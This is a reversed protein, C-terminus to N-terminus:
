KKKMKKIKKVEESTIGFAIAKSIAQDNAIKANNYRKASAAASGIQKVRRWEKHAVLLEGVAEAMEVSSLTVLIQGKKVTDGMKVHRSIIQAEIRPTVKSSLYSNIIVEGPAKIETKLMKLALPEIVINAMKINDPSLDVEAEEEEHGGEGHDHGDSKPKDNYNKEGHDHEDPMTIESQVQEAEDHDHGHGHDKEASIAPYSITLTAIATMLLLKKM